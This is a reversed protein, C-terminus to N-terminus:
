FKPVDIVFPTYDYNIFEKVEEVTMLKALDKIVAINYLTYDRVEKKVGGKDPGWYEAMYKMPGSRKGPETFYPVFAYKITKGAFDADIYLQGDNNDQGFLCDKIPKEGKEIEKGYMEKTKELIDISRTVAREDFNVNLISTVEEILGDRFFLSTFSYSYALREHLFEIVDRARSVMAEGYNWQFYRAIFMVEKEARIRVYIQSRQGM